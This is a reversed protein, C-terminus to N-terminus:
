GGRKDDFMDDGDVADPGPRLPDGSLSDNDFTPPAAQAAQAPVPTPPANRAKIAEALRAGPTEAVRQRAAAVVADKRDKAAQIAADSLTKSMTDFREGFGKPQRGQAAGGSSGATFGSGGGSSGDFGAAEAFSNGGSGPHGGGGGNGLPGGSEGGASTDGGSGGGGSLLGGSMDSAPGGGAGDGAAKFAEMVAKAGGALNAAGAVALAAGMTAAATAMSAAAMVSGAGLNGVGSGGVPGGSVVSSILSPVRGSLILTAVAVFLLVAMDKLSTSQGMRLYYKDILAQGIGVLLVMAYLEMALKLVTRYFGIAIDTTWRGGGFGLYFIGAYTLMWASILLLLMNIATLLLMLLIGLAMLIGMATDVPSLISSKDVVRAFIAFGVDVVGSPSLTGDGVRSAEGAIRRMSDIISKAFRPGNILIWWFFGTVITFKTLEAIVADFGARAVIAMMGFTWVMSLLVLTWFVWEARAQVAGAWTAAEGSFERLM